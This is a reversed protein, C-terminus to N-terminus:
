VDKPRNQWLASGLDIWGERAAELRRRVRGLGDITLDTHVTEGSHDRPFYTLRWPPEEPRDEPEGTWIFTEPSSHLVASRELLAERAEELWAQARVRLADHPRDPILDRLAQSIRTGIATDDFPGGRPRVTRCVYYADGELNIEVWALRGLELLVEDSPGDDTM